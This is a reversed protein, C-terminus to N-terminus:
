VENELGNYRQINPKLLGVFLGVGLAGARLLLMFPAIILIPADHQAIFFLFALATLYFILLFALSLLPAPLTLLCLALLIIQLRQSLPTHSDGFAKRPHRHLLFIKWYGIWFKRVAYERWNLDHRHYVAAHTFILKHGQQTLRFSFEQDEVSPIPYRTDFGANALFIERRYAASYTDIFDIRERQAMAAYKSEYELQV